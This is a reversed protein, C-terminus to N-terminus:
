QGSWARNAVAGALRQAGVYRKTLHLTFKCPQMAPWCILLPRATSFHRMGMLAIVIRACSWHRWAPSWCCPTRSLWLLSNSRLWTFNCVLRASSFLGDLSPRVCTLLLNQDWSLHDIPYASCCCCCCALVPLILWSTCPFQWAKM